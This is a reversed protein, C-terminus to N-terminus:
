EKKLEQQPSSIRISKLPILRTGYVTETQYPFRFIETGTSVLQIQLIKHKDVYFNFDM